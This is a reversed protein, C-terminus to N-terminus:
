VGALVSPHQLRLRVLPEGEELLGHLQRPAKPSQLDPQGQPIVTETGEPRRDTVVELVSALQGVADAVCRLQLKQRGHLQAGDAKSMTISGILEVGANQTAHDVGAPHVQRVGGDLSVKSQAGAEDIV